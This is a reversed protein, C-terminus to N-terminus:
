LQPEEFHLIFACVCGVPPDSSDYAKCDYLASSLGSCHCCSHTVSAHGKTALKFHFMSEIVEMCVPLGQLVSTLM